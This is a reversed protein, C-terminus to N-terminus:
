QLFEKREKNVYFGPLGNVRVENIRIRAANTGSNAYDPEIRLPERLRRLFWNPM